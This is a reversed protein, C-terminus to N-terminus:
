WLRHFFRWGKVLFAHLICCFSSSNTFVTMPLSISWRGSPTSSSSCRLRRPRQVGHTLSVVDGFYGSSRRQRFPLRHVCRWGFPRKQKQLPPQTPNSPHNSPLKDDVGPINNIRPAHVHVQHGDEEGPRRWARPRGQDHLVNLFSGEQM